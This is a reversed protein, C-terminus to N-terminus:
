TCRGDGGEDGSALNHYFYSKNPDGNIDKQFREFQDLATGLRGILDDIMEIIVKLVVVVPELLPKLADLLPILDGRFARSMDMFSATGTEVGDMVENLASLVGPGQEKLFDWAECIGGKVVDAFKEIKPEIQDM